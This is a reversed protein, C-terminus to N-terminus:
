GLSEQLKTTLTDSYLRNWTNLYHPVILFNEGSEINETRMGSDPCRSCTLRVPTWYTLPKIEMPSESKEKELAWSVRFIGDKM